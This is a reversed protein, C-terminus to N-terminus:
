GHLTHVPGLWEGMCHAYVVDYFVIVQEEQDPFAERFVAACKEPSVEEQGFVYLVPLRKTRLHVCVCVYTRIYVSLLFACLTCTNM